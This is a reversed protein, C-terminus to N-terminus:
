HLDRATRARMWWACETWNERRKEQNFFSLPTLIQRACGPPRRWGLGTGPVQHLMHQYSYASFSCKRQWISHVDLCFKLAKKFRQQHKSYPISYNVLRDEWNAQTCRPLFSHCLLPNISNITVCSSCLCFSPWRFVTTLWSSANFVQWLCSARTPQLSPLVGAQELSPLVRVYRRKSPLPDPLCLHASPQWLPSPMASSATLVHLHSSPALPGMEARGLGQTVGSFGEIGPKVWYIISDSQDSKTGVRRLQLRM